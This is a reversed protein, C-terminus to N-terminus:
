GLLWIKIENNGAMGSFYINTASGTPLMNGQGVWTQGATLDTPGGLEQGSAVTGLSVSQTADGSVEWGVMWMGSPIEYIYSAASTSIEVVTVGNISEPPTDPPVYPGGIVDVTANLFPAPKHLRATGVFQYGNRGSPRDASDARARLRMNPVFRQEDNYYTVVVHLRRNVIKARLLEMEARVTRLRAILTYQFFDGAPADETTDELRGTLRDDEFAYAGAGPLFDLDGISPLLHWDPQSALDDPDILVIRKISGPTRSCVREIAHLEPFM